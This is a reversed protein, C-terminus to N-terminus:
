WGTRPAIGVRGRESWLGSLRLSYRKCTTRRTYGAAARAANRSQANPPNPHGTMLTLSLHGRNTACGARVM